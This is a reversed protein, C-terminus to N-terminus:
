NRILSKKVDIKIYKHANINLLHVLLDKNVYINERDRELDLIKISSKSAVKPVRDPLVWEEASPWWKGSKQYCLDTKSARVKYFYDGATSEERDPQRGKDQHRQSETWSHTIFTEVKEKSHLMWQGITGYM